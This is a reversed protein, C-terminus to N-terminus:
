ADQNMPNKESQIWKREAEYSLHLHKNHLMGFTTLIHKKFCIYIHVVITARCELTLIIVIFSIHFTM